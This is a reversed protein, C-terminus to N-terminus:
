APREGPAGVRVPSPKLWLSVHAPQMTDQVIEVLQGSLRELEVENRAGAAFSALTRAADYKRRYFRRDIFAQVHRALWGFLVVIALTSVITVFQSQREGTVAQFLAQLLVISASYIVVLAATLVSYILTRRILLDIDWLRYRLISFALSIPLALLCLYVLPPRALNIWVRAPGNTQSAIVFLSINVLVGLLIGTLGLAVWKTQQRQIPSSVHRYRYVQSFTGVGLLIVWFLLTVIFSLLNAWVGWYRAWILGYAALVIAAGTYGAALRLTWRPVFRGDPALFLLHLHGVMGLVGIGLDVPLWSPWVAALVHIEPSVTSTGLIVLLLAAWLALWGESRRWFIFVGVVVCILALGVEFTMLYAAYASLSFGLSHLAEVEAPGLRSMYVAELYPAGLTSPSDAASVLTVLQSWRLPLSVAFPILLGVVLALSGAQLVGGLRRTMPTTRPDPQSPTM